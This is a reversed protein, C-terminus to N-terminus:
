SQQSGCEHREDHGDCWKPAHAACLHRDDLDAVYWEADTAEDEAQWPEAWAVHEGREDAYKHCGEADCRVRYM